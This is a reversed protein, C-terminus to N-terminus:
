ERSLDVLVGSVIKKVAPSIKKSIWCLAVASVVTCVLAAEIAIASNEIVGLVSFTGLIFIQHTLYIFFSYRDSLDLIKEGKGILFANYFGMLVIVLAIGLLVHTYNFYRSSGPFDIDAIYKCFIKIVNAFAAIMVIIIEWLKVTKRSFLAKFQGLIIGLVYCIIWAPNYYENFLEFFLLLGALLLGARVLSKRNNRNVIEMRLLSPTILYCLLIYSVFWVHDLTTFGGSGKIVMLYAIQKVGCGAHLVFGIGGTVIVCIYYPVMIKMFQKSIWGIPDYIKRNSYLYGSIFFFM